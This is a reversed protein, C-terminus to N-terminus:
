FRLIHSIELDMEVDSERVFKRLGLNARCQCENHPWVIVSETKAGISGTFVAFQELVSATAM